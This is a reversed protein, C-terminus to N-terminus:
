ISTPRRKSNSDHNSGQLSDVANKLCNAIQPPMKGGRVKLLAGMYQAALGRTKYGWEETTAALAIQKLNAMILNKEAPSIQVKSIFLKYGNITILVAQKLQLNDM